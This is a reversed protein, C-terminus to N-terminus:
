LPPALRKKDREILHPRIAEANEHSQRALFLLRGVAPAFDVDTRYAQLYKDLASSSVTFAGAKASLLEGEMYYGVAQWTKEAQRGLGPSNRVLSAPYLTRYPL